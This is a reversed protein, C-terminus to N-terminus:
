LKHLVVDRENHIAFHCTYEKKAKYEDQLKKFLRFMDSIIM